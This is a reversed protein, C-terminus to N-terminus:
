FWRSRDFGAYSRQGTNCVLYLILVLMSPQISWGDGTQSQTGGLTQPRFGSPSYMSVLDTSGMALMGM